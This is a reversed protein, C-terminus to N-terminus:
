TISVMGSRDANQEASSPSSPDTALSSVAQAGSRNSNKLLRLADIDPVSGSASGTVGVTMAAGSVSITFELGAGITM